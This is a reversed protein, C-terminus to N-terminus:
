KVTNSIYFVESERFDLNLTQLWMKAPENQDNKLPVFRQEIISLTYFNMSLIDAVVSRGKPLIEMYDLINDSNADGFFGVGGQPPNFAYLQKDNYHFLFYLDQGCDFGECILFKATFALFTDKGLVFKENNECHLRYLSEKVFDVLNPQEFRQFTLNKMDIREQEILLYSTRPNLSELGFDLQVSGLGGVRCICYEFDPLDDLSYEGSKNCFPLKVLLNRHMLDNKIQKLTYGRKVPYPVPMFGDTNTLTDVVTSASSNAYRRQCGLLLLLCCGLCVMFVCSVLRPKM